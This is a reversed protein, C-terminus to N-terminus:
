PSLSVPLEPSSDRKSGIVYRLGDLDLSDGLGVVLLEDHAIASGEFLEGPTEEVVAAM